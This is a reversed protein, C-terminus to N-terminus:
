SKKSTKAFFVSYQQVVETSNCNPCHIKAHDHAAMTMVVSFVKHCKRCLYEYTPM